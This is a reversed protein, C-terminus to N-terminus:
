EIKKSGKYCRSCKICIRGNYTSFVKQLLWRHLKPISVTTEELESVMSLRQVNMIVAKNEEVENVSNAMFAILFNLLLIGVFFVYEMQIIDLMHQYHIKYQRVDIANLMIRFTTFFSKFVTSFDDLCQISHTNMTQSLLTVFPLQMILFVMAFKALGGLMRNITIVFPGIIQIVQAFYMGSFIAAASLIVRTADMIYVPIHIHSIVLGAYVLSTVSFLVISFDYVIYQKIYNRKGSLFEDRSTYRDRRNAKVKRTIHFVLAFINAIILLIILTRRVGVPFNFLTFNHCFVFTANAQVEPPSLDSVGGYAALPSADLDIIFFGMLQIIRLLLWFFYSIGHAKLKKFLWVDFQGQSISNTCQGDLASKDMNCIFYMPSFHRRGLPRDFEYETIDYWIYEILGVKQRKVIHGLDFYKEMLGFTCQQAAFELPRLGKTTEGMILKSFREAPIKQRFHELVQVMGDQKSRIYASIVVLIHLLNYGEEDETIEVDAGEEIFLDLIDVSTSAAALFLPRTIVNAVPTSIDIEEYQFYGNLLRLKESTEKNLTSKIEQLNGSYLDEYWHEYTPLPLAMTDVPSQRVALKMTTITDTRKMAEEDVPHIKLAGAVGKGNESKRM